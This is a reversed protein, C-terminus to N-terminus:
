LELPASRLTFSVNFSNLAEYNANGFQKECIVYLGFVCAREGRFAKEMERTLALVLPTM